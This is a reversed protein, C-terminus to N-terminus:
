DENVANKLDVIFSELENMKKYVMDTEGLVRKMKNIDKDIINDCLYIIDSKNKLTGNKIQQLKKWIMDCVKIIFENSSNTKIYKIRTNISNFIKDM